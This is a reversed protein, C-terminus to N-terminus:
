QRRAATAPLVIPQPLHQLREALALAINVGNPPPVAQWVIGNHRVLGITGIVDQPHDVFHRAVRLIGTPAQPDDCDVRSGTTFHGATAEVIPLEVPVTETWAPTEHAPHLRRDDVLRDGGTAALRALLLIVAEHIRAAELIEVAMNPLRHPHVHGGGGFRHGLGLGLGGVGSRCPVLLSVIVSIALAVGLRM